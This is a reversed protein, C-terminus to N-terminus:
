YRLVAVHPRVFFVSSLLSLFFFLCEYVDSEARYRLAALPPDLWPSQPDTCFFEHLNTWRNRLYSRLCVSLCVFQDCYEAGRCLRFLITPVHTVGRSVALLLQFAFSLFFFGSLGLSINYSQNIFLICFPNNKTDNFTAKQHKHM